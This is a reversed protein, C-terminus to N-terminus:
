GQWSTVAGSSVLAAQESQTYGLEALVERTHQGLLPPPGAPGSEMGSFSMPLRVQRSTSGDAATVDQFLGRALFQPLSFLSRLDPIPAYPVDQGDLLWHWQAAPKSLFTTRLVRRLEDARRLREDLDLDALHGLGLIECLRHWFHQERVIGITIFQGDATEFIDYHPAATVNPHEPEVGTAAARAFEIGMWSAASDAMSLDIFTGGGGNARAALAATVSLAAFLGSALDSVLAPPLTPRGGSLRASAGLYGGFALYNLDHGPRQAYPGDQGFGSVSCYILKPNLASLAEFDVGLRRAVGPRSGELLVDATAALRRVVEVGASSKLDVVISRRGRNVAAFTPGQRRMPDGGPREVKIVDAGLDSLLTACYPGPMAITLDIVRLGELPKMASAYPVTAMGGAAQAPLRVM